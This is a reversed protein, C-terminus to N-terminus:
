NVAHRKALARRCAANGAGNSALADGASTRLFRHSALTLDPLDLISSLLEAEGVFASTPRADRVGQPRSGLQSELGLRLAWIMRHARFGGFYSEIM